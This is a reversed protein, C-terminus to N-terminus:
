TNDILLFKQMARTREALSTHPNTFPWGHLVHSHFVGGQPQRAAHLSQHPHAGGGNTHGSIIPKRAM